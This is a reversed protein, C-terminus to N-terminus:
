YIEQSEYLEDRQNIIYYDKPTSEEVTEDCKNCLENNGYIMLEGCDTCKRPNHIVLNDGIKVYLKNDIEIFKSKTM